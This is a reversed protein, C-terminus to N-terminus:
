KKWVYKMHVVAAVLVILVFAFYATIAATTSLGEVIEDVFSSITITHESFHPIKIFIYLGDITLVRLWSANTVTTNEFFTASNIEELITEGDYTLVINDLDSLVGQGIYIACITGATGEPASVSFSFTDKSSDLLEVSLYNQYYAINEGDAESVSLSLGIDGKSAKDEIVYDIFNENEKKTTTGGNSTGGSSPDNNVEETEKVLIFNIQVNQGETVKVSQSDSIYGQKSAKLTYTGPEFNISYDGQSDTFDCKNDDDSIVLCMKVSAIPKGEESTVSGYVSGDLVVDEEYNLVNIYDIASLYDTKSATIPYVTNEDVLPAYFTVIGNSDSQATQDSFTVTVGSVYGDDATITVQFNNGEIASSQASIVLQPKESPDNSPVINNIVLISTQDSIYESKFASIYYSLNRSVEPATFSVIGQSTTYLTSGSFNVMVNEVPEGESKVTVEFEEKENVFSQSTIELEPKFSVQYTVNIEVYYSKVYSPFGGHVSDPNYNSQIGCYIHGGELIRKIESSSTYSITVTDYFDGTYKEVYDNSKEKMWFSFDMNYKPPYSLLDAGGDGKWTIDIRDIDALSEDIEFDFRHYQYELYSSSEDEVFNSNEDDSIIEYDSHTFEADDSDFGGNITTSGEYAFSSLGDCKYIHIDTSESDEASIAQLFPMLSFFMIFFVLLISSIKKM